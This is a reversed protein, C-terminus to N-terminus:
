DRPSPSTYLLCFNHDGGFCTAFIIANSKASNLEGQVDVILFADNLIEGSQLKFDGLKFTFTEHKNVMTFHQNTEITKLM